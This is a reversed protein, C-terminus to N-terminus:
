QAHRARTEPVCITSQPDLRPGISGWDETGDIDAVAMVWGNSQRIVHANVEVGKFEIICNDGPQFKTV